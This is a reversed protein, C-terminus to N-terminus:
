SGSRHARDDGLDARRRERVPQAHDVDTRDLLQAALDRLEADVAVIDDDDAGAGHRGSHGREAQALTGAIERRQLGERGGTLAPEHARVVVDERRVPEHGRLHEEHGVVEDFAALVEVGPLRQHPQELEARYGITLSFSAM